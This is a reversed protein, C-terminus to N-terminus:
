SAEELTQGGERYLLVLDGQLAEQGELSDVVGGLKTDDVFKIITCEFGAELDNIFVNFLVPGLISGQPVSSTVPWGGYTVGNVVVRQARGKLWNKM